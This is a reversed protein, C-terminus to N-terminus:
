LPDVSLRTRIVAHVTDPDFPENLYETALVEVAVVRHNALTFAPSDGTDETRKLSAKVAAAITEAETYTAPATKSWVHLDVSVIAADYCDAVEDEPSMGPIVVYPMAENPRPQAAFVKVERAGFATAVETDAKLWTRLAPRLQATPDSM